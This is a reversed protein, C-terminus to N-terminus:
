KKIKSMINEAVGLGVLGFSCIIFTNLATSDIKCFMMIIGFCICIAGIIRKSSLKGNVDQFIKKM